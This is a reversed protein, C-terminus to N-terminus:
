APSPISEVVMFRLEIQSRDLRLTHGPTFPTPLDTLEQEDGHLDRLTVPNDALRQVMYGGAIRIIKVHRRSVLIGNPHGRLDVAVLDNDPLSTDSRGIIAPLWHLRYSQRLDGVLYCRETLRSATKPVSSERDDLVLTRDKQSLDSMRQQPDLVVHEGTRLIYSDPDSRLYPLDNGFENLIEEICERITLTPLAKGREVGHNLIAVQFPIHKGDTTM